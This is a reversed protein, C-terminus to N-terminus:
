LYLLVFSIEARMPTKMTLVIAILCLLLILLSAALKIAKLSTWNPEYVFNADM